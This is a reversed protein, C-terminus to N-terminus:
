NGTYTVKYVIGNHDDTFYLSGDNGVAVGALRGFQETGNSSLFGTIFDRVEVPRGDANFRVNAIKYGSPPNRNWSGRFAMFATNRYEAPFQNGNYFKFAMPASHATYTLVAPETERAYEEKTKDDPAQAMVRDIERNGWVFPWGYDKGEEIKNLEEPPINDGRMDSGHDWGWLEKTQPHWDFGVTNRLGKAFVKRNKGDADMVLMTAHEKNPEKCANCTSGVSVYLKGDPGFAMTRNPHQGGDPLDNLLKRPTTINGNSHLDADYLETPTALYIKNNRITIGHVDKLGSAIEKQDDARGDGNNDKLSVVKGAKKLTIYLRDDEGVAIMRPNELGEAYVNVKFGPLTILRVAFENSPKREAPVVTHVQVQVKQLDDPKQVTCSAAFLLISLLYFIKM